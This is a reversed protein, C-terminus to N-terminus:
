DAFCKVYNLYVILSDMEVRCTLWVYLYAIEFPGFFFLYIFYFHESTVLTMVHFIYPLLDFLRSLVKICYTVPREYDNGLNYVIFGKVICHCRYNYM